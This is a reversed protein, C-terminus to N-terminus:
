NSFYSHCEFTCQDGKPVVCCIAWQPKGSPSASASVYSTPLACNEYPSKHYFIGLLSPFGMQAACTNAIALADKDSRVRDCDFTQGVCTVATFHQANQNFPASQYVEGPPNTKAQAPLYTALMLLAALVFYKM